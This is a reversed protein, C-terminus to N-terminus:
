RADAPHRTLPERVGIYAPSGALVGQFDLLVPGVQVGKSTLRYERISLEHLGSRKKVVSIAKRVEGAAEFYRLLVITDSLFSFDIPAQLDGLLGHQSMIVITTIGRYDLYTLLEHMHLILAQEEPMTALYSNLSDIVVLRVDKDEVHRRVSWTFEGPSIRTPKMDEWVLLGSEVAPAIDTGLGAARAAFTEFTEDFAFIAAAEKRRAAAMVYQLALSSKGAGSPGLLMTVTGRTLGGGLLADLGPLESSVTELQFTTKNDEAILSPFVDFRGTAILYDHHGSQFDTGRMKSVRLRRRAAGYERHRVELTLVGHVISHFQLGGTMNTLDDLALTTCDRGTLFAKLALIQRRFRLPDRALLRLESLSDIVLRDPKTESIRECVLNMTEGLEVESPQLVTQQRDLQAELPVLEYIEIGDLSWGHSAATAALEEATEGLTIYLCREGQRAGERVFELALTTKGTGPTGEVLYLRDRPLGGKLISDLRPNGTSLRRGPDTCRESV